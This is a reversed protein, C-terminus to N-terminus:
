ASFGGDIPLISGTIWKSYDSLLFCVGHAVDEPKGIGLPHEQIIKNYAVEGLTKSMNATIDTDVMGPAVANFRIRRKAVEIALSRTMSELAGKTASYLSAGGSGRNAASSSLFVVSLGDNSFATKKTIHKALFQAGKVNVNFFQSFHKESSLSIPVFQHIGVCYVAGNMAGLKDVCFSVFEKVSDEITTDVKYSYFQGPGDLKDINSKLLEHRRAGLVLNAGQKAAFQAIALGIGSSAGLVAINKGKLLDRM